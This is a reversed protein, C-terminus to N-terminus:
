PTTKVLLLLSPRRRLPLLLRKSQHDVPSRHLSLCYIVEVKNKEKVFRSSLISKGVFTRYSNPKVRVLGFRHEIANVLGVYMRKDMQKEPIEIQSAKFNDELRGVVEDDRKRRATSYGVSNASM